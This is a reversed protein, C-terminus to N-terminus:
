KTKGTIVKAAMMADRVPIGARLNARLVDRFKAAQDAATASKVAASLGMGSRLADRMRRRFADRNYPKGANNWSQAFKKFEPNEEDVGKISGKNRSAYFVQEGKKEGYQKRMASLIEKGKETLPM